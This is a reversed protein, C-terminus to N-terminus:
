FLKRYGLMSLILLTYILSFPLDAVLRKMWGSYIELLPSFLSPAKYFGVFSTREDTEQSDVKVPDIGALRQNTLFIELAEEQNASPASFVLTLRMNQTDKIPVFKFKIFDGDQIIRGNLTSTALIKNDRDLILLSIDKKNALNPNKISVGIASLGDDKAVFTQTITESGYVKETRDLSPQFRDPISRIGLSLITPLVFTMFIVLIITLSVSKM